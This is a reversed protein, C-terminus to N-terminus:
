ERSSSDGTALTSDGASDPPHSEPSELESVVESPWRQPADNVRRSVTKQSVEMRIALERQSPLKGTERVMAKAVLIITDISVKNDPYPMWPWPSAAEDAWRFFRSWQRGMRRDGRWNVLQGDPALYKGHEPWRMWGSWGVPRMVRNGDKNTTHPMHHELVFAPSGYELQLRRLLKTFPACESSNILDGEAMQYIPGMIVLTPQSEKLYRRLINEGTSDLINIGQPIIALELRGELIPASESFARMRSQVDDRPNEFDLRLVSQPPISRQTYPHIGAAGQYGLQDLLTSKGYGENGTIVLRDGKCLLDPLVWKDPPYVEKVFDHINVLAYPDYSYDFSFPDVSM